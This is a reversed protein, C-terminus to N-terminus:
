AFVWKSDLDGLLLFLYDKLALDELIWYGFEWFGLIGFFLFSVLSPRRRNRWLYLYQGGKGM